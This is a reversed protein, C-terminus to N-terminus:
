YHKNYLMFVQTWIGRCGCIHSSLTVGTDTVRANPTFPVFHFAAPAQQGWGVELNLSLSLCLWLAPCKRQGGHLYVSLCMWKCTIGFMCEWAFIFGMCLFNSYNKLCCSEPTICICWHFPIWFCIDKYKHYVPKQCPYWAMQPSYLSARSVFAVTDTTYGYALLCGLLCLVYWGCGCVGRKFTSKISKLLILFM